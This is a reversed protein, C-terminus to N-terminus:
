LYFKGKTKKINYL